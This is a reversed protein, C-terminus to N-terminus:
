THRRVWQEILPNVVLPAEDQPCHGVGPLPIFEEVCEFREFNKGWEIKEWPDAEGWLISVPVPCQALQHEPLPGSSYSIFDLFVHVAGDELGPKLIAQVLEDSVADKSCYCQRLVNRVGQETAVQSFFYQGLWTTRLTKQLLAVFPKVLGAQKEIHLMRLSINMVQVSAVKTPSKIAAQLGAIGGVSNCTIFVKEHTASIENVFDLIQESWVDFNYISNVPHNRPDPKSSFGYGLLDLAYVRHKNGGLVNLNKRWHDCNGGFGHVAVIIPGEDGSRQYRIRHGRWDWHGQFVHPRIQTEQSDLSGLAPAGASCRVSMSRRKVVNKTGRDARLPKRKTCDTLSLPGSAVPTSVTQAITTCLSPLM